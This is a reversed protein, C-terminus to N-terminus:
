AGDPREDDEGGDFLDQINLCDPCAHGEDSEVWERYDHVPCGAEPVYGFPEEFGCGYDCPRPSAQVKGDLVMYQCRCHHCQFYDPGPMVREVNERGCYPCFLLAPEGEEEVVQLDFPSFLRALWVFLGFLWLKLRFKPMGSVVIEIRINGAMENIDLDCRMM